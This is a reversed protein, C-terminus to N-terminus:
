SVMNPSIASSSAERVKALSKSFTLSTKVQQYGLHHYFAHAGHRIINSRVYIISCGRKLAWAEAEQLLARGIGKGRWSADVVLGAIEAADDLLLSHLVSVQVWGILQNDIEAVLVCSKQLPLHRLRHRIEASQAPYGLQTTLDALAQADNVSAERIHLNVADKSDREGTHKSQMHVMSPV